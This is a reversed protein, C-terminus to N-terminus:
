RIQPKPKLTQSIEHRKLLAYDLTKFVRAHNSSKPNLPRHEDKLVQDDKNEELKKNVDRLKKLDAQLMEHENKLAADEARAKKLQDRENKLADCEARAQELKWQFTEAKRVTELYSKEREKERESEKEKEEARDKQRKKEREADEEVVRQLESRVQPLLDLISPYFQQPSPTCRMAAIARTCERRFQVNKALDSGFRHYNM